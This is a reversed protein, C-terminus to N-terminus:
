GIDQVQSFQRHHQKAGQVGRSASFLKLQIAGERFFRLIIKEERCLGARQLSEKSAVFSKVQERPRAEDGM